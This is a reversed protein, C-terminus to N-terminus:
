TQIILSWFGVRKKKKDFGICFTFCKKSNKAKDSFALIFLLFLFSDFQSICNLIKMCSFVFFRFSHFSDGPFTKKWQFLAKEPFDKKKKKVSSLEKQYEVLNNEMKNKFKDIDVIKQIIHSNYLHEDVTSWKSKTGSTQNSGATFFITLTYQTFTKLPM